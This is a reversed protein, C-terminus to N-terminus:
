PCSASSMDHRPWLCLDGWPTDRVCEMGDPCAVGDSCGLVCVGPLEEPLRPARFCAVRARGSEPRPCATHPGCYIACAEFDQCITSATGYSAQCGRTPDSGPGGYPTTPQYPVPERSGGSGMSGPASVGNLQCGLQELSPDTDNVQLTGELAGGTLPDCACGSIEPFDRIQQDVRHGVSTTEGSPLQCSLTAFGADACPAIQVAHMTALGNECRTDLQLCEGWFRDLKRACSQSVPRFGCAAREQDDLVHGAPFDCDSGADTPGWGLTTTGDCALLGFALILARHSL